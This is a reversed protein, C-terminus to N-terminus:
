ETRSEILRDKKEQGTDKHKPKKEKKRIKKLNGDFQEKRGGGWRISEKEKLEKQKRQKTM